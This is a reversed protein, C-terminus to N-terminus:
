VQDPPLKRCEASSQDEDGDRLQAEASEDKVAALAPLMQDSLRQVPNPFSLHPMGKFRGLGRRWRFRADHINSLEAGADLSVRRGFLLWLAAVLLIFAVMLMQLSGSDLLAFISNARPEIDSGGLLSSRSQSVPSSQAWVPTSATLLLGALLSTFRFILKQM